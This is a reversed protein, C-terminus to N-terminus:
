QAIHAHVGGYNNMGSQVRNHINARILNRTKANVCFRWRGRGLRKAPHPSVQDGGRPMYIQHWARAAAQTTNIKAKTLPLDQVIGMPM